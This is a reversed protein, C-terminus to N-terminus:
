KKKKKWSVRTHWKGVERGEEEEKKKKTPSPSLSLAKCNYLLCEVEQAV